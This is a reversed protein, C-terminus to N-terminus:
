LNMVEWDTMLNKEESERVYETFTNGDLLGSIPFSKIKKDKTKRIFKDLKDLTKAARYTLDFNFTNLIVREVSYTDYDKGCTSKCLKDLYCLWFLINYYTMNDHDDFFKYVNERNVKQFVELLKKRLKKDKYKKSRRENLKFLLRDRELSSIAM